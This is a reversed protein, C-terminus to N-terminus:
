YARFLYLHEALLSLFTRKISLKSLPAWFKPKSTTAILTMCGVYLGSGGVGAIVRGLIMVNISLAAGCIASGIEFVTVHFIFFWKATLYGYMRGWALNTATASLLFAVSLWPMKKIGGLDQVIIPQVDAIVTAYLAYLFTSALISTLTLYWKWGIIERPPAEPIEVLEQELKIGAQTPESTNDDARSTSSEQYAKEDVPSSAREQKKFFTM